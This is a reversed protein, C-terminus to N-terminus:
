GGRAKVDWRCVNRTECANSTTSALACELLLDNISSQRRKLLRPRRMVRSSINAAAIRVHGCSTM